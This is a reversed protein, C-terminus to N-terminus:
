AWGGREAALPHFHPWIREICRTCTVADAAATVRWATAVPLECLTLAGDAHTRMTSAYHVNM